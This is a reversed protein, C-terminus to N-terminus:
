RDAWLLLLTRDDSSGKRDYEIWGALGRGVEASGPDGRLVGRLPAGEPDVMSPLSDGTFLDILRRDEPFFDDSIGDTMLAVADLRGPLAFRVRHEMTEDVGRTTLFRTESSHAGHDAEGLLRCEHGDDGQVLLAIQGDGVQLGAVLHGDGWPCLVALLLTAAFAEVPEGRMAAAERLGNLAARGANALRARLGPLSESKLREADEDRPAHEPLRHRLEEVARDCAVQSGVRSLRASGAGDSVALITWEGRRAYAYADERWAGRHAHLRGRTSAAALNWGPAFDLEVDHRQHPVPDGRDEPEMVKWQPAQLEYRHTTVPGPQMGPGFGRASVVTSTNYFLSDGRAYLPSDALPETGDDTYRIEADGTACTLFLTIPPHYSGEPLSFVVPAVEREPEAAPAVPANWARRARTSVDEEPAGEVSAHGMSADVPAGDVSGYDTSGGAVTAAEVSVGDASAGDVLAGDMSVGDASAGDRSAGDVSAGDVSAGNASAGDESAGDVLAGDMSLGDASAGDRSAGDVSAGDVSAGNASAGDASAGDVPAGDMLADEVPAGDNSLGDASAGDVPPGALEEPPVTSAPTISAGPAAAPSVPAAHVPAGAGDEAPLSTHRSM